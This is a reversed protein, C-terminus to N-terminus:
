KVGYYPLVYKNFNAIFEQETAAGLPTNYYKKYYAALKQLDGAPPLPEKVRLYHIRTMATAYKLDQIMWKSAPAHNREVQSCFNSIEPSHFYKLYNAWIDNHTEDEMMYIGKAIGSPVQQLYTGMQSEQACTGALLMEASLSYLGIEKLIPQIILEILQKTNIGM